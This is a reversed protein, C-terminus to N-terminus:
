GARHQVVTSFKALPPFITVPLVIDCQADDTPNVRVIFTGNANAEDFRDKRVVGRKIWYRIRSVIFARVDKIQVVGEPPEDEGPEIDESLKAGKFERPLSVRLDKAVAFTGTPVSTDLVRDDPAGASDVQYTTIPRSPRPTGDAEYTVITIGHNLADEVEVDTPEDASMNSAGYLQARYAMGIRNVAPDISEERLRAGMEAGGWECPLSEGNLCFPYQSEEDNMALSGTKLTALAGTAGFIAQQLKANFGLMRLDIAAKLLGPGSAIGGSQVDANSGCFLIHDYEKGIITTLVTTLVPELTGGSLSAGGLTITGASGTLNETELRLPVDNGILGKIVFTLTVTGAVNVARLPLDNALANLADELKDGGATVAEGTKWIFEVKRGAAWFRVTVDNTVPGGGFVVTKFAAVGAPEAPSVLDIQALGYEEFARKFALHGPVGAGIWEAAADEGAVAEVLQTDATITGTASKVAIILGKKTASGPSAAGAKLNILLALGPTKVTPSVALPISGM